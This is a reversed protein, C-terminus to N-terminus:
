PTKDSYSALLDRRIRRGLRQAQQLGLPRKADIAGATVEEPLFRSSGIHGAVASAIIQGHRFQIARVQGAQWIMDDPQQQPWEELKLLQISYTEFVAMVFSACTLGHGLDRGIYDGSNTFYRGNFTFGFPVNKSREAILRCLAVLLRRNIEDLDVQLWRYHESPAENRLDLHHRLNLLMADSNEFRYLVGIHLQQEGQITRIAIGLDAVENFPRNKPDNIL